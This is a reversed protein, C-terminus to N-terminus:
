YEINIAATPCVFAQANRGAISFWVGAIIGVNGNFNYELAPAISLQDSSPVGSFSQVTKNIDIYGEQGKFTMKNNHQYNFDFSFVGHRSFSYEFAATFTYQAGMKMTGKTGYGGGYSHFGQVKFKNYFQYAFYSRLILFHYGSIHFQKGINFDITPRYSGGGVADAVTGDPSLNKYRGLPITTKFGFNMGPLKSDSTDQTIGIISQLILDGINAVSYNRHSQYFFQPTLSVNFYDSLGLQILNYNYAQIVNDISSQKWNENYVGYITNIFLYPEVNYTGKSCLEYPPCLLPGTNWCTIDVDPMGNLVTQALASSSYAIFNLLLIKKM